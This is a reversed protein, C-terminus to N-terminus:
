VGDTARKVIEAKLSDFEEASLEGAQKMKVLASLDSLSRELDKDTPRAQPIPADGYSSASQDNPPIVAEVRKRAAEALPAPRERDRRKAKTWSWFFYYTAFGAFALLLIAWPILARPGSVCFQSASVDCVDQGRSNRSPRNAAEVSYWGLILGPAWCLAIILTRNLQRVVFGLADDPSRGAFLIAIGSRLRLVGLWLLMAAWFVKGQSWPYDRGDTAERVLWAGAGFVAATFLWDIARRWGGRGRPTSDFLMRFTDTIM